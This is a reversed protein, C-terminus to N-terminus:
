GDRGVLVRDNKRSFLWFGRRLTVCQTERPALHKRRSNYRALPIM